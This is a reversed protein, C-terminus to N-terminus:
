LRCIWERAYKSSYSMNTLCMVSCDLAALNSLSIQIFVNYFAPSKRLKALGSAFSIYFRRDSIRNRQKLALESWLAYGEKIIAEADFDIWLHEAAWGPLDDGVELFSRIADVFDSLMSQHRVALWRSEPAAACLLFLQYCLLRFYGKKAIDFMFQSGDFVLEQVCGAFEGHALNDFVEIDKDQPSWHIRHFLFRSTCASWDKAVFRVAKLDQKGLYQLIELKLEQPLWM